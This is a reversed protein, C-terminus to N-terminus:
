PTSETNEEAGSAVALEIVDGVGSPGLLDRLSISLLPGQAQDAAAALEAYRRGWGVADLDSMESPLLSMKLDNHLAALTATELDRALRWEGSEDRVIYRHRNLTELLSALTHPSLSLATQLDATQLGHGQQSTGLLGELIRLAAILTASGPSSDERRGTAGSRWEPLAAALEAGALVVTWTLYVWILLIPFAALAGYVTQYTPVNGVYLGFGKKLFEFMVAAAIAGVLADRRRVSANPIVSFVVWFGAVQLLPPFLGALRTLSGTYSEVGSERAIAFLYSSVSLSTGFILPTLTLVSWYVLLRTVYARTERVRWIANFTATVSSLLMVSTIALFLVGIATLQGTRSVFQELQQRVVAGAHPVFSEIMFSQALRQAEDFAPFAAFAAFGVALLPVVALLSSFTLAAARASCHDTAYRQAVLAILQGVAAVVTQVGKNEKRSPDTAMPM